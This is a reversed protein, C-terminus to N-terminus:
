KNKLLLLLHTPLTEEFISDPDPPSLLSSAIISLSSWMGNSYICGFHKHIM